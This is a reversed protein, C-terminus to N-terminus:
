SVSFGFPPSSTWNEPETNVLVRYMERTGEFSKRAHLWRGNNLVLGEGAVLKHSFSYKQLLDVLHPLLPMLATSFFGLEDYRFRIYMNGNQHRMFVSGRFPSEGGGFIVSDNTCLKVLEEPFDSQLHRYIEKADVLLLEGGIHAPQTSLILFLEPPHEIGSRETHFFLEQYTFGKYGSQNGIQELPVIRTLGSADADRHRYVQGLKRALALLEDPTRMDRFTVLGKELLQESVKAFSEPESLDAVFDEFVTM